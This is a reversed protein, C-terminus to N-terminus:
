SIRNLGDFCRRFIERKNIMMNWNLGCQMVEMMLFEFQRYDDRVPIGWEEDHYKVNLESTNELDCYSM